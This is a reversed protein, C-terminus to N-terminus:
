DGLKLFEDRTMNFYEAFSEIQHLRMDQVSRWRHVQQRAVKWDKAMNVTSIDRKEQAVRICKGVNTRNMREGITLFRANTWSKGIPKPGGQGARGGEAPKKEVL